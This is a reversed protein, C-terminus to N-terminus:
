DCGVVSELDNKVEQEQAYDVYLGEYPKDSVAFMVDTCRINDYQGDGESSQMHFIRSIYSDDRADIYAGIDNGYNNPKRWDPSVLKNNERYRRLQLFNEQLIGSSTGFPKFNNTHESKTINNNPQIYLVVKGRMGGEKSGNEDMFYLTKGDVIKNQDVISETYFGSSSHYRLKDGFKNQMLEIIDHWKADALWQEYEKLETMIFLPEHNPHDESWQEMYDIWDSLMISSPNDVTLDVEDGPADHGLVLDGIHITSLQVASGKQLLLNYGRQTPTLKVEASVLVDKENNYEYVLIPVGDDIILQSGIVEGNATYSNVYVKGNSRVAKVNGKLLDSSNTKSTNLSWLTGNVDITEVRYNTVTNVNHRFIYLTNDQEFPYFSEGAPVSEVKYLTTGLTIESNDFIIEKIEYVGTDSSYLTIFAKEEFIFSSLRADVVGTDKSGIFNLVTGNYNHVTLTGSTPVYDLVYQESQYNLVNFERHEETWPDASNDYRLEQEGDVVEYIKFLGDMSSYSFLYNKDVYHFSSLYDVDETWNTQLEEETYFSFLDFEFFRLGSELQTTLGERKMGGQNGSYSNHTGRFFFHRYIATTSDQVVQEPTPNEEGQSPPPTTELEGADSSCGNVLLLSFLCISCIYIKTM